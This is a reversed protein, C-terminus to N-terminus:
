IGFKGAVIAEKSVKQSVKQGSEMLNDNTKIEDVINKATQAHKTINGVTDTVNQSQLNRGDAKTVKRTLMSSHKGDKNESIDFPENNSRSSHYKGETHQPYKNNNHHHISSQKVNKQQQHIIKKNSSTTNKNTLEEDDPVFPMGHKSIVNNTETQKMEEEDSYETITDNSNFQNNEYEDNSEFINSEADQYDEDNRNIGEEDEHDYGEDQDVEEEETNEELDERDPVMKYPKNGAKQEHKRLGYLYNNEDEEEASSINEGESLDLYVDDASQYFSLRPKVVAYEITWNRMAEEADMIIQRTAEYGNYSARHEGPTTPQDDLLELLANGYGAILAFKESLEILSNFQYNFTTKLKERTINSLQAEAVLSDAEARVLEQELVAIKKNTPDKYKLNAVHDALKEKRDRSPQVSTEINRISKLALRYQDYKDIFQNQLEGLEFLLVSLKDTVDSVDDENECGWDSLFAAADKRENAVVEYARLFNKETKVLQSLKRSLTPGFSGVTGRRFASSISHRGFYKSKTSARPLIYDDQSTWIGNKTRRLSYAKHM